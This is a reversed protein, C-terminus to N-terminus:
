SDALRCNRRQLRGAAVFTGDASWVVKYPDMGECDQVWELGLAEASPSGPEGGRQPQKKALRGRLRRM